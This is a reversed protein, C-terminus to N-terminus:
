YLSISNKLERLRINQYRLISLYNNLTNNMQTSADNCKASIDGCPQSLLIPNLTQFLDSVIMENEKLENELGNLINSLESITNIPTAYDEAAMVSKSKNVM